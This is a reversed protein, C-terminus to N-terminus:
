VKSCDEEKGYDNLGNRIVYKYIVTLKKVTLLAVFIDVFMSM